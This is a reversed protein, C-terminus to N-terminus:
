LKFSLIDSVKSLTCEYHGDNDSYIVQAGHLIKWDERDFIVAPSSM